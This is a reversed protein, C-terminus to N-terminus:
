PAQPTPGSVSTATADSSGGSSGGGGSLGLAAGVGVGAIVVGVIAWFVPKKLISKSKKKGILLPMDAIDVKTFATKPLTTIFDAAVNAATAADEELDVIDIQKPTSASGNKVDVVKVTMRNLHDLEKIQMLVIQDADIGTGLWVAEQVLAKSKTQKLGVSKEKNRHGSYRNKGTIKIQQDALDKSMVKLVPAKLSNGATILQQTGNEPVKIMLTPGNGRYRGNVYIPLNKRGRVHITLDILKNERIYQKYIKKYYRRLKPPYDYSALGKRSVDLAIAKETAKIAKLSKRQQQAIQTKLLHAKILADHIGPRKQLESLSKALLVKAENLEFNLFHREAQLFRNDGQTMEERPIVLKNFYAAVKEAPIVRIKTSQSLSKELQKRINISKKSPSKEFVEVVAINKTSAAYSPGVVFFSLLYGIILQIGFNKM